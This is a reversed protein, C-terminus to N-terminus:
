DVQKHCLQLLSTTKSYSHLLNHRSTMTEGTTVSLSTHLLLYPLPVKLSDMSLTQSFLGLTKTHALQCRASRFLEQLNQSMQEQQPWPSEKALLPSLCHQLKLFLLSMQEQGWLASSTPLPASGSLLRPPSLKHLLRSHGGVSPGKNGLLASWCCPGKM